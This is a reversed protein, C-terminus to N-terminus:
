LGLKKKLFFMGVAFKINRIKLKILLFRNKIIKELLRLKEEFESSDLFEM